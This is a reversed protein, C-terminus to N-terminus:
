VSSLEYNNNLLDNSCCDLKKNSVLASIGKSALKATVTQREVNTFLAGSNSGRLGRPVLAVYSLMKDVDPLDELHEMVVYFFEEDELLLDVLDLRANITDLRTPPAMLNTRLLRGGVSTKTCDLTGMLSNAVKGTRANVLLELNAMTSRDIHMRQDGGVNVDLTLSGHTLSAGLCLQSYLLVAHSSALLIYEELIAADYTERRALKRLLEAGRTQDFYSRPVFKVVTATECAGSSGGSHKDDVDDHDKGSGFRSQRARDGIVGMWNKNKKSKKTAGGVVIGEDVRGDGSAFMEMVKTALRSNRRGENMLIEDPSIMRLLALTESYTQGNGQKVVQIVTPRLADITSVCTERALNESIAATIHKHTSKKKKKRSSNSRPTRSADYGTISTASTSSSKRAYAYPNNTATDGM